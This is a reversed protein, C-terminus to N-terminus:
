METSSGECSPANRPDERLLPGPLAAKARPGKGELGGARGRLGRPQNGCLRKRRLAKGQCGPKESCPSGQTSPGMAGRGENIKKNIRAQPHKEWQEESLIPPLSPSLSVCRSTAQWVYGSLRSRVQLGLVHRPSPISDSASAGVVSGCPPNTKNM